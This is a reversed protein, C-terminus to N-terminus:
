PRLALTHCLAQPEPGVGKCEKGGPPEVAGSVVDMHVKEHGEDQTGQGVEDLVRHEEGRVINSVTIGVPYCVQLGWRTALGARRGWGLKQFPPPGM